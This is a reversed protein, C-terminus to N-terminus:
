KAPEVIVGQEMTIEGADVMRALQLRLGPSMGNPDSGNLAFPYTESQGLDSITLLIYDGYHVASHITAVDVPAPPEPQWLPNEPYTPTEIEDAM